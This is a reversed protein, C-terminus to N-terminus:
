ELYLGHWIIIIIMELCPLLAWVTPDFMMLRFQEEPEKLALTSTKPMTLKLYYIRSRFNMKNSWSKIHRPNRVSKLLFTISLLSTCLGYFSSLQSPLIALLPQHALALVTVFTKTTYECLSCLNKSCEMTLMCPTCRSMMCYHTYM